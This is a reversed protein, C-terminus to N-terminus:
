NEANEADDLVSQSHVTGLENLLILPGWGKWIQVLQVIMDGFGHPFLVM